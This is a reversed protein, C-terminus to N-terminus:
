IEFVELWVPDVQVKVNQQSVVGYDTGHELCLDLEHRKAEPMKNEALVAVSIQGDDRYGVIYVITGPCSLKYPAGQKIRYTKDMPYKTVLNQVVKSMSNFWNDYDRQEQETM